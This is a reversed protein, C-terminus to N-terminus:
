AAAVESRAAGVPRRRREWRRAVVVSLAAAGAGAVVDLFYHNATAMVVWSTMAAYGIAAARLWRSSTIHWVAIACWIAYAVHLSPMAAYENAQSALAGSSWAGIAHTVAVTDVFGFSSLMRPPAVPYLWFVVLGVTNIGALANRLLRYSGPRRWWIFALLMLTVAFHALDYYDALFRALSLHHALWHNFSLEPDLHFRVEVRLLSAGHGLARAARLPSLNNIRDYLWLGFVIVALQTWWAPRSPAPRAPSDGETVPRDRLDIEL